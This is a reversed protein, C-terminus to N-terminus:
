PNDINAVHRSHLAEGAGLSSLMTRSGYRSDHCVQGSGYRQHWLRSFDALDEPDMKNFWDDLDKIM